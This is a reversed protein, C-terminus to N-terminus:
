EITLKRTTKENGTFITVFYVGRNLLSTDIVTLGNVNNLQVVTQGLLNTLVVNSKETLQLNVRDTAPNPYLKVEEKSNNEIGVILAFDGTSRSTIQYVGHSLHLIGDITGKGAPIIGNIYNADYFTTKFTSDTTEGQALVYKKNVAFTNTGNAEHFRVDEIRILKAQHEKMFENDQMQELTFVEPTVVNNMSTADGPDSIPIFQLMDFYSDLKGVINSIGEGIQYETTINGAQDHIMIAGTEDQVFKQNNFSQAYTLIAESSLTYITSNDANKARLEAISNVVNGTEIVFEGVAIGSEDLGDKYAIAKITTTETINIAETYETSNQDPTSGDITYYITAGETTTSLVVNQPVYFTGPAPSFIPASVTTAPGNTWTLEVDDIATTARNGSGTSNALAVIRIWVPQNINDIASGFDVTVETNSFTEGGTSIVEPSSTLNTFATPNNGYAYQVQWKTTRPSTIDLSQLQFKLEFSNRDTTNAIQMVFAAGPDGLSGTQRVGLARNTAADQVENSATAELGNGSAYNKFGGGTAAWLGKNGGNFTADTGLSTATSSLKVYWGTPLGAGLQDFNQTYSQGTLTIQANLQSFILALLVFLITIKKM